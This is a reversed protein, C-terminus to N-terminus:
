LKCIRGQMVHERKMELTARSPGKSSTVWKMVIGGYQSPKALKVKALQKKVQMFAAELAVVSHQMQAMSHCQRQPSVNCRVETRDSVKSCRNGHIVLVRTGNM